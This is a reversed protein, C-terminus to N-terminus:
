RLLGSFTRARSSARKPRMLVPVAPSVAGFAKTRGVDDPAGVLPGVEIRREFGCRSLVEAQIQRPHVTPAQLAEEFLEGFGVGIMMQEDYEVASRAM